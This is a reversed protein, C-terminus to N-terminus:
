LSKTESENEEAILRNQREFATEINQVSNSSSQSSSKNSINEDILADNAGFQVSDPTRSFGSVKM